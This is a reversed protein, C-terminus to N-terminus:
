LTTFHETDWMTRVIQEYIAYTTLRVRRAAAKSGLFM